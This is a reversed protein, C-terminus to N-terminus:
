VYGLEEARERVAELFLNAKEKTIKPKSGSRANRIEGCIEVLRDGNWAESIKVSLAEATTLMDMTTLKKM